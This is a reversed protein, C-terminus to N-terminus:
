SIKYSNPKSRETIKVFDPRYFRWIVYLQETTQFLALNSSYKLICFQM